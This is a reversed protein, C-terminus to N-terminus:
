SNCCRDFSIGAGQEILIKVMDLKRRVVAHALLTMYYIVPVGSLKPVVSQLYCVDLFSQEVHYSKAVNKMMEILEELKNQSGREIAQVFIIHMLYFTYYKTKNAAKFVLM